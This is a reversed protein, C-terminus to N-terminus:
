LMRKTAVVANIFGPFIKNVPVECREDVWWRKKGADWERLYSPISEKLQRVIEPDYDFELFYGPEGKSNGGKYWNRLAAM